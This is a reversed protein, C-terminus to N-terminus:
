FMFDFVEQYLSAERKINNSKSTIFEQTFKLWDKNSIEPNKSFVEEMADFVLVM